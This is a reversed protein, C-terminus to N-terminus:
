VNEPGAIGDQQAAPQEAFAVAATDDDGKKWRLLPAVTQQLLAMWAVCDGDPVSNGRVDLDVLAPLVSRELDETQTHLHVRVHAESLAGFDAICNWSVDLFTLRSPVRWNSAMENNTRPFFSAISEIGNERLNLETLCEGAHNNYLLPALAEVHEIRNASLDLVSVSGLTLANGLAVCGVDCIANGHLDLHSLLPVAGSELAHGLAEAGTPGIGNCSLDLHQLLPTYPLLERSLLIGGASSLGNGELDLFWIRSVSDSHHETRLHSVLTECGGDNIQHESLDLGNSLDFSITTGPITGGMPVLEDDSSSDEDQADSGATGPTDVLGLAVAKTAIATCISLISSIDDHKNPFLEDVNVDVDVDGRDITELRFLVDTLGHLLDLTSASKSPVDAREFTSSSRTSSSRTTFEDSRSRVRSTSSVSCQRMKFGAVM